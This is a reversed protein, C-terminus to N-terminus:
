VSWMVIYPRISTIAIKKEIVAGGEDMGTMWASSFINSRAISSQSSSKFGEKVFSIFHKTDRQESEANNHEVRQEVAIVGLVM